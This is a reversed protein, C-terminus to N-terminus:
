SQMSKASPLYDLLPNRESYNQAGAPGVPMGAVEANVVSSAPSAHRLTLAWRTRAAIPFRAIGAIQAIGSSGADMHFHQM